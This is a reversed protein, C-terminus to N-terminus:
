NLRFGTLQKRNNCEMQLYMIIIIIIIIIVMMMMMVVMMNDQAFLDTSLDEYTRCSIRAV